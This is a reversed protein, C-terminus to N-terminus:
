LVTQLKVNRGNSNSLSVSPDCRVGYTFIKMAQWNLAEGKYINSHSIGSEGGVRIGPIRRLNCWCLEREPRWTPSLYACILAGPGHRRHGFRRRAAGDATGPKGNGEGKDGVGRVQHILDIAYNLIRQRNADDDICGRICENHRQESGRCQGVQDGSEAVEVSDLLM